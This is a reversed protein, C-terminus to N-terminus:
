LSHLQAQSKATNVSAPPSSEPEMVEFIYPITPKEPQSLKKTIVFHINSLSDLHKKSRDM